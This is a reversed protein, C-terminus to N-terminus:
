PIRVQGKWTLILVAVYREGFHFIQPLLLQVESSSADALQFEDADHSCRGCQCPLGVMDKGNRIDKSTRVGLLHVVVRLM